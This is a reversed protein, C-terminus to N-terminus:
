VAGLAEERSTYEELRQIMGDRVTVLDYFRSEMQRGVHRSEGVIAVEAYVRGDDLDRVEILTARYDSAWRLFDDWVRLCDRRGHFTGGLFVTRWVIDPHVYTLWEEWEPWLEGADYARVIPRPDSWYADFARELAALTRRVVEVNDASM